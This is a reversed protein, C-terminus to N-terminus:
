SELVYHKVVSVLINSVITVFSHAARGLIKPKIRTLALGKRWLTWVLQPAWGAKNEAPVSSKIRRDESNNCLMLQTLVLKKPSGIPGMKLPWVTWSDPWFVLESWRCHFGITMISLITEEPVFRDSQSSSWEGWDIALTLFSHLQVEVEECAKMAHVPVKGNEKSWAKNNDLYEFHVIIYLVTHKRRWQMIGCMKFKCKM